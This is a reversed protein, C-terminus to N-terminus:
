LSWCFKFMVSKSQKKIVGRPEQIFLHFVNIVTSIIAGGSKTKYTLGNIERSEGNIENYVV